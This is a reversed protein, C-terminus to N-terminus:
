NVPERGEREAARRVALAELEALSLQHLPRDVNLREADGKPAVLGARDCVSKILDVRASAPTKPDLLLMRAQDLAIAALDTFARRMEKQIAEQVHPKNRLEHARQPASEASYGAAIAAKSGNGANRVWERAFEAQQATLERM